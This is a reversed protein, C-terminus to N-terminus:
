MNHQVTPDLLSESESGKPAINKVRKNKKLTQHKKLTKRSSDLNEWLM